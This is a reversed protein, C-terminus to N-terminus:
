TIASSVNSNFRLGGVSVAGGLSTIPNAITGNANFVAVDTAGPVGASLTLHQIEAFWNGPTTFAGNVDGGWFIDASQAPLTGLALLFASISTACILRPTRM